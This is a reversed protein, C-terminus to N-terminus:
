NSKYGCVVHGGDWQGKYNFYMSRECCIDGDGVVEVSVDGPAKGLDKLLQNVNISQRQAIGFPYMNPSSRTGDPYVLVLYAVKNADKCYVTIWEDFGALTTGEAFYFCRGLETAGLTDDGGTWSSGGSRYTFYMPREAVVPLSSTLTTAVDHGQGIAPSGMQSVDYTARARAPVSVTASKRGGRDVFFNMNVTAATANPNQITIYETNGPQTNGEAFYWISSPSAAGSV